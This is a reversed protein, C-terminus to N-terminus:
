KNYLYFPLGFIGAVVKFLYLMFAIMIAMSVEVGYLSLLAALAGERVGLGGLSIPIAAALYVLPMVFLLENITVDLLFHWCFLKTVIIDTLQALASLVLLPFFNEYGVNIHKSILYKAFVTLGIFLPIGLLLFIHNIELTFFMELNLSFGIVLLVLLSMFGFLREAAVVLGADKYSVRCREASYKIRMMDGGINGPMFINFFLGIMYGHYADKLSFDSWGQFNILVKWRLALAILLLLTSGTGLLVFLFTKLEITSLQERDFIFFLYTLIILSFLGKIIPALNKIKKPLIM